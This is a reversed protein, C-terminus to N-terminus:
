VRDGKNTGRAIGARTLYNYSEHVAELMDGEYSDLEVAAFKVHRAAKSAAVLDVQGAGAPLFPSADSVMVKGSETEAETFADNTDVRGDKFHLFVGRSGIEQVFEVPNRGARAVWFLDAEWLITEPTRELFVRYGPTGDVDALDWDHNHYGIRIGHPAANQEAEAYLDALARIRDLSSFDEQFKPPCGTIIAEHGMLLAEDLVRNKEDGVPLCSHCSPARLGLESLLKSAAEPSSGPYGAPEVCGFGIDALARITGEYDQSLEERLTYLQITIEPTM